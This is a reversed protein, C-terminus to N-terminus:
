IDNNGEELDEIKGLIKECAYIIGRDADDNSRSEEFIAKQHFENVTDRLENWRKELEDARQKQQEYLQKYDTVDLLEEVSQNNFEAIAKLREPNPKNVNNEWRIVNSGSAGFRKGFESTNEGLSLRISKIRQGLSTLLGM